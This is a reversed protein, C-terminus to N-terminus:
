LQMLGDSNPYQYLRFFSVASRSGPVCVVVKHSQPDLHDIIKQFHLKNAIKNFSTKLSSVKLMLMEPVTEDERWSPCLNQM